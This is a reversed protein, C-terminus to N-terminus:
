LTLKTLDTGRDFQIGFMDRLCHRLELEDQLTSEQRHGKRTLILRMGSLTVRGDATALSCVRGKTFHSEPSTQHYNCMGEYEALTQPVDFFIYQQIEGDEQHKVLQWQGGSHRVSYRQGNEVTTAGSCLPMPDVFSEGFGVDALWTEELDVKLLMHDFEPGYNGDAHRVSASLMHVSFGMARLLECFLGNLEYCFGGRQRVVIKDFLSELDLRIPTGLAIDLNEFPVSFLHQRHLDRLTAATPHTSGRYRIRRLYQEVDM